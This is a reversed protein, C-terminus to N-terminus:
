CVGESSFFSDAKTRLTATKRFIDSDDGFSSDELNEEETLLFFEVTV